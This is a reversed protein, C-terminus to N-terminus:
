PRPKQKEFRTVQMIDMSYNVAQGNTTAPARANLKVEAETIFKRDLDYLLTADYHFTAAIPKGDVAGAIERARFELTLFATRSGDVNEVKQLKITAPEDFVLTGDQNSLMEKLPMGEVALREPKEIRESEGVALPKLPLYSELFPDYRDQKFILAVDPTLEGELLRPKYQREIWEYRITGAPKGIQARMAALDLGDQERKTTRSDIQEAHGGEARVVTLLSETRITDSKSKADISEIFIEQQQVVFSEGDKVTISFDYKEAASAGSVLAMWAVPFLIHHSM